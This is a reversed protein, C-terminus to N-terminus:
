EGMALLPDVATVLWMRGTALPHLQDPRYHSWRPSDLM